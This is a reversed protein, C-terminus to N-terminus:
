RIVQGSMIDMIQSPKNYGLTDGQLYGINNGFYALADDYNKAPSDGAPNCSTSIVFGFPNDASVMNGCLQKILPHAIVRVALSNHKGTIWTPITINKAIPLLWTTAQESQPNNNASEWSNALTQKQENTLEDLLPALRDMSDTVVIMGKDIPRNKITLVQKVADENFADCGIGWVSETPYALLKGKKLWHSATTPDTTKMESIM